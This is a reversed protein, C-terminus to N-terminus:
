DDKPHAHLCVKSAPASFLVKSAQDSAGEGPVSGLRSVVRRFVGTVLQTSLLLELSTISLPTRSATAVVAGICARLIRLNDLGQDGMGQIIAATYLQDLPRLGRGM